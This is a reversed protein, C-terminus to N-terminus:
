NEIDKLLKELLTIIRDFFFGQDFEKDLFNETGTFRKFFSIAIINYVPEM